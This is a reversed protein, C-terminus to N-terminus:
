TLSKLFNFFGVPNQRRLSFKKPIRWGTWKERKTTSRGPRESGLTPSAPGTIQRVLNSGIAVRTKGARKSVPPSGVRTSTSDITADPHDTVTTETEVDLFGMTMNENGHIDISRAEGVQGDGLGSV